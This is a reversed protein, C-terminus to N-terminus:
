GVLIDTDFGAAFLLSLPTYHPKTQPVVENAMLSVKKEM